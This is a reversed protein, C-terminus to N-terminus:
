LVHGRLPRQIPDDLSDHGAVGGCRFSITM